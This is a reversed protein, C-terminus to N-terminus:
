NQWDIPSQNNKILFQNTKSFPKSGFFGRYASLPSPHPSKLILHQPKILSEFNQAQRGWLIFVLPKQRQGLLQIIQRTIPKWGIDAHSQPQGAKVTLTTNLLLVGQKAWSTLDGNSSPEIGIDTFREKFINQLSAPIPYDPRVSFSLGVANGPTPYPDQGLIVVKTNAFSTLNLAKFINQQEPLVTEKQYLQEIKEFLDQNQKLQFTDKLIAGWDNKPLNLM